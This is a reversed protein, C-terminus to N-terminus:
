TINIYVKASVKGAQLVVLLLTHTHTHASMPSQIKCESRPLWALCTVTPLFPLCRYVFRDVSSPNTTLRGSAHPRSPDSQMLVLYM